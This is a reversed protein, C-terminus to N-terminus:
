YERGEGPIRTLRILVEEDDGNLMGLPRRKFFWCPCPQRLADSKARLLSPNWGIEGIMHSFSSYACARRNTYGTFEGLTIETM